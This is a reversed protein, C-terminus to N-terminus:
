VIIVTKKLIIKSWDSTDKIACKLNYNGTKKYTHYTLKKDTRSVGDGFNWNCFYKETGGSIQAKISLKKGVPVCNGSKGGSYIEIYGSRKKFKNPLVLVGFNREDKEKKGKVLVTGNYTKAKKYKHHPNLRHNYFERDESTSETKDGWTWKILPKDKIKTALSFGVSDGAYIVGEWQDFNLKKNKPKVIIPIKKSKEILTLKDYIEVYMYHTGPKRYTHDYLLNNNIEGKGNDGFYWKKRHGINPGDLYFGAILPAKGNTTNVYIDKIISSKNLLYSAVFFRLPPQVM